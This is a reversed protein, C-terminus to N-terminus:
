FDGPTENFDDDMWTQGKAMNQKRFESISQEPTRVEVRYKSVLFDVFDEVEKQKDL